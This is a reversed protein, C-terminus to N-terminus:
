PHNGHFVAPFREQAFSGEPGAEGHGGHWEHVGQGAAGEVLGFDGGDEEAEGGDEGFEEEVVREIRPRLSGSGGISESIDFFFSTQQRFTHYFERAVRLASYM